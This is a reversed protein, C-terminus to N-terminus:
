KTFSEYCREVAGSLDMSANVADDWNVDYGRWRIGKDTVQWVQLERRSTHTKKRSSDVAYDELHEFVDRFRKRWPLAKDFRGIASQM